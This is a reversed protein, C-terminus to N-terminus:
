PRKLTPQKNEALRRNKAAFEQIRAADYRIFM